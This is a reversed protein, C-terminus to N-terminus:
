NTEETLPCHLTVVDANKLGIELPLIKVSAGHCDVVEDGTDHHLTASVDMGLADAIAAVRMGIKGLGVIHLNKKWLEVIPEDQYFLHPCLM